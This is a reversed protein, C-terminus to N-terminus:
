NIVNGFGPPPTVQSLIGAHDSPWLGGLKDIMEEGIVETRVAALPGDGARVSTDHYLIFDIRKVYGPEVNGLDHDNCCTYGNPDGDTPQWLDDFGADLLMQYTGTGSGDANSNLDGIVFTPLTGLQAVELLELAQAAQVAPVDPELHTNIVRYTINGVKVDVMNWGRIISFGLGPVEFSAAFNDAASNVVEVDGRTLIVDYDTLRIDDLPFNTAIPLEVDTDETIAAVSYELGRSLLEAEIIALFDVVVDEALLPNGVLFDGPSQIRILSIEQLGVVHPRARDIQNVIAVARAAFDTQIITALTSAAVFPVDEPAAAIVDDVNGGIYVNWTMVSIGATIEGPGGPDKCAGVALASLM